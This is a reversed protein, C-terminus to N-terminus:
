LWNPEPTSTFMTRVLGIPALGLYRVGLGALLSLQRRPACVTSTSWGIDGQHYLNEWLTAWVSTADLPEEAIRRIWPRANFSLGYGGAAGDWHSWALAEPGFAQGLTATRVDLAANRVDVVTLTGILTGGEQVRLQKGPWLTAAMHEPFFFTVEARGTTEPEIRGSDPYVHEGDFLEGPRVAHVPRLGSLKTRPRGSEDSPLLAFM